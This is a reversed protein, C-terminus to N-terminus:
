AKGKRAMMKNLRKVLLPVRKASEEGHKEAALILEMALDVAEIQGMQISLGSPESKGQQLTRGRFELYVGEFNSFARGRNIDTIWEGGALAKISM